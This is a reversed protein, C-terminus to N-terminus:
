KLGEREFFAIYTHVLRLESRMLLALLVIGARNREVTKLPVGCRRSLEAGPLRGERLMRSWLTVDETVCRALRICLLRSDLHKPFNGAVGELDLGFRSLDLELRLMAEKCEMEDQVSGSRPDPLTEGLDPGDEATSESLSVTPATRRNRRSEDVLRNRILLRAYAEFPVGREARFSDIASDFTELAIAFEDEGDVFYRRTFRRTERRVFPLGSALFRERLDADGAQIALITDRADVPLGGM